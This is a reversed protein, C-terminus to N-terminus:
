FKLVGYAVFSVTTRKKVSHVTCIHIHIHIHSLSTFQSNRIPSQAKQHTKQRALSDPILILFFFRIYERVPTPAIRELVPALEYDGTNYPGGM